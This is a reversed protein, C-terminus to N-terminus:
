LIDYKFCYTLVKTINKQKKESETSYYAYVKM